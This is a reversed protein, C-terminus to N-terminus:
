VAQVITKLAGSTWVINVFILIFLLVFVGVVSKDLVSKPQNVILNLGDDVPNLHSDTIIIAIELIRDSNFDLGTM